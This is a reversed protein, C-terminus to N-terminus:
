LVCAAAPQTDAYSHSINAIESLPSKGGHDRGRRVGTQAGGPSTVVSEANCSASMLGTTPEDFQPRPHYRVARALGRHSGAVTVFRQKHGKSTVWM